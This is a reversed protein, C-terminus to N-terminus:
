LEDIIGLLAAIILLACAWLGGGFVILLIGLIFLVIWHFPIPNDPKIGTYITLVSIVMGIIFRVIYNLSDIGQYFGYNGDMGTLGIICFALGVLGGIITLFKMLSENSYHKRAM